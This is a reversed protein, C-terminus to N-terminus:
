DGFNTYKHSLFNLKLNTWLYVLTPPAFKTGIASALFNSNLNVMLNLTELVLEAM